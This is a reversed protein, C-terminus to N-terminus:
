KAVFRLDYLKREIFEVKGDKISFFQKCSGIITNPYITMNEFNGKTKWISTIKIRHVSEKPCLPCDFTLNGGRQWRPNLDIFNKDM